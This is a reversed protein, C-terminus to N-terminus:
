DTVSYNELKNIISFMNLRKKLSTTSFPSYYIVDDTIVISKAEVKSGLLKGIEKNYKIFERIKESSKILHFDLISIIEQSDISYEDDIYIYMKDEM